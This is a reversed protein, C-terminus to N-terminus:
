RFDESFVWVLVDQMVRVGEPGYDGHYAGPLVFFRAQVGSTRLQETGHRMHDTNELEGGLVAVRHAGQFHEPLAAEPPGGLVVNPYRTPYTAALVEARHAGQSYGILGLTQTDLHGGRERRVAELARDIREQLRAPDKTWKNGPRDGCPTEARLLVLTGFRAALPAWRDAPLSTSCMGHLYVIAREIPPAAHLVRVRYDHPVDVDIIRTLDVDASLEFNRSPAPSDTPV